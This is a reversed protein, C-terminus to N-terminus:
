VFFKFRSLVFSDSVVFKEAPGAQFRDQPAILLGQCVGDKFSYQKDDFCVSFGGPFQTPQWNIETWIWDQPINIEFGYQSNTYTKWDSTQDQTSVLTEALPAQPKLVMATWSAIGALIVVILFWVFATSMKKPTPPIVVPQLPLPAPTPTQVEPEM